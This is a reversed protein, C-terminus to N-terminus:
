QESVLGWVAIRKCPGSGLNWLENREKDGFSITM